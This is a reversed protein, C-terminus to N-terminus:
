RRGPHVSTAESTRKEGDLPRGSLDEAVLPLGATADEGGGDLRAAAGELYRASRACAEEVLAEFDVGRAPDPDHYYRAREPRAAAAAADRGLGEVRGLPGCTLLGFQVLGSLWEAMLPWAPAVGWVARCAIRLARGPEVPFAGGLQAAVAAPWPLEGRTFLGLAALARPPHDVFRWRSLYRARGAIDEGFMRQHYYLSQWKEARLHRHWAPLPDGAAGEEAVHREVARHTVQDFAAHVLYGAAFAIRADRADGPAAARAADLLAGAFPRPDEEHFREAWPFAPPASLRFHEVLRAPFNHYYPLDVCVAGLRAAGPFHAVAHEIAHPLGHQVSLREISTLHVLTSAV